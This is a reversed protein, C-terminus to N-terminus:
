LCREYAMTTLPGVHSNAMPCRALTHIPLGPGKIPCVLRVFEVALDSPVELPQRFFKATPHVPFDALHDFLRDRPNQHATVSVQRNLRCRTPKKSHFSVGALHPALCVRRHQGKRSEGGGASPPFEDSSRLLRRSCRDAPPPCCPGVEEELSRVGYGIIGVQTSIATPSLRPAPCPPRRIDQSILPNRM